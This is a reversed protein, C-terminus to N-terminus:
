PRRIRGPPGRDRHGASNQGSLTELEPGPDMNMAVRAARVYYLGEM